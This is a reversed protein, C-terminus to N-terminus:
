VVGSARPQNVVIWTNAARKRIYLEENAALNGSRTISVGGAASLTVNGSGLRNIYIVSGVPFNVSTDNPVTLTINSTNTCTVVGLRDNLELTKTSTTIRDTRLGTILGSVTTAQLTAM